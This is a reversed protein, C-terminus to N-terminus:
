KVATISEYFELLDRDLFKKVKNLNRQHSSLLIDSIRLTGLQVQVRKEVKKWIQRRRETDLTLIDSGSQKWGKLFHNLYLKTLFLVIVLGCVPIVFHSPEVTKNLLADLLTVEPLKVISKFLKDLFFFASFAILGGIAATKYFFFRSKDFVRAMAEAVMKLENVQSEINELLHHYRFIQASLISEKLENRENHFDNLDLKERNKVPSYTLFIRPIDKRGTMQSLNWCLTGYSRVLDSLSDCEDIRNMAFIIRDECSADPLTDRITSYTEKITGPKQLDFMLVVLDALRAFEGVVQLYNYGRDKETEADLMGPSDIISMKELAPADIKKMRFHSIFKEGFERFRTYPLNEDRVMTAGLTDSEEPGGSTIITFSDDTPAQGTRQIDRGLLENILTSKGSSYNGIILVISDRKLTTKLSDFDFNYYNFVPALKKEVRKAIEVQLTNEEM